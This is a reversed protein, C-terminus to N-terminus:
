RHCGGGDRFETIQGGSYREGLDARRINGAVDVSGDAVQVWAAAFQRKLPGFRGDIATLIGNPMGVDGTCAQLAPRRRHFGARCRSGAFSGRRRWAAVEGSALVSSSWRVRVDRRDVPRASARRDIGRGNPLGACRASRRLGRRGVRCAMAISCRGVSGKSRGSRSGYENRQLDAGFHSADVAGPHAWAGNVGSCWAM